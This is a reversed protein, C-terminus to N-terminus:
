DRKRLWARISNTLAQSNKGVEPLQVWSGDVLQVSVGCGSEWTVNALEKKPINRRSKLGRIRLVDDDLVVATLAIEILGAVGIVSMAAFGASIWTVGEAHLLLTTVVPMAVAIVSVMGKIWPPSSLRKQLGTAM